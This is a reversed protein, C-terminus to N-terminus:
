KIKCSFIREVTRQFILFKEYVESKDFFKSFDDLFSVYYRFGDVSSVLAPGWVDLHIIELPSSARSTSRAYPLGHSKAQQCAFCIVPAKNSSLTLKHCAVVQQVLRFAPYGLRYHWQPLSARAGFSVLATPPPLLHPMSYLGHKLPGELLIKGTTLYKVFFCSLHFDISM